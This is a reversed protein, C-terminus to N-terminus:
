DDGGRVKYWKLHRLSLSVLSANVLTNALFTDRMVGEMWFNCAWSRRFFNEGCDKASVTFESIVDTKCFVTRSIRVCISGEGHVRVVVFGCTFGELWWEELSGCSARRWRVVESSHGQWEVFLNSDRHRQCV